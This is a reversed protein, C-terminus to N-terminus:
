KHRSEARLNNEVVGCIGKNSDLRQTTETESVHM